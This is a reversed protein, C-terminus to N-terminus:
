KETLERLSFSKPTGGEKRRKIRVGRRFPCLPGIEIDRGRTLIQMKGGGGGSHDGLDFGEEGRIEEGKL